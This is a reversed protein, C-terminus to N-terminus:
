DPCRHNATYRPNAAIAQTYATIAGQLDGQRARTQGENLLELARTEAVEVSLAKGPILFSTATISLLISSVVTSKYFWNMM